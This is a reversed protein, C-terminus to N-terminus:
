TMFYLVSGMLESSRVPNERKPLKAKYHVVFNDSEEYKIGHATIDLSAVMCSFVLILVARLFGV